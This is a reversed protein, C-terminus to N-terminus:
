PRPCMCFGTALARLGRGAALFAEPWISSLANATGVFDMTVHLGIELGDSKSPAGIKRKKLWRWRWVSFFFALATPSKLSRSMSHNAVDADAGAIATM